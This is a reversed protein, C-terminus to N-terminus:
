EGLVNRQDKLASVDAALADNEKNVKAGWIGLLSAVVTLIAALLPAGKDTLWNFVRGRDKKEKKPPKAPPQQPDGPAGTPAHIQTPEATM